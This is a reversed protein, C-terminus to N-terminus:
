NVSLEEDLCRLGNQERWGSCCTGALVVWVLRSLIKRYSKRRQVKVVLRDHRPHCQHGKSELFRSAPSCFGYRAAPLIVPRANVTEFPLM